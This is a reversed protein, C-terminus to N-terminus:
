RPTPYNALNTTSPTNLYMFSTSNTHCTNTTTGKSISNTHMPISNNSPYNRPNSIWRNSPVTTNMSSLRKTIPTNSTSISITSIPAFSRSVSRSVIPLRDFNRSTQPLSDDGRLRANGGTSPIRRVPSHSFALIARRLRFQVHESPALICLSM